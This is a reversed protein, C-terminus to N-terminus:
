AFGNLRLVRAARGRAADLNEVSNDVPGTSRDGEM